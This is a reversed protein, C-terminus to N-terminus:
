SFILALAMSQELRRRSASQESVRRTARPLLLADGSEKPQYLPGCGLVGIRRDVSSCTAWLLRILASFMTPTVPSQLSQLSSRAYAYECVTRDGGAAAIYQGDISFRIDLVEGRHAGTLSLIPESLRSTRKVSRVLGKDKGDKASSIPVLSSSSSAGDEDEIRTRKVLTSSAAASASPPRKTAM